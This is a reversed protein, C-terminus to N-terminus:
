YNYTTIVAEDSVGDRLVRVDELRKQIQARISDLESCVEELRQTQKSIDDKEKESARKTEKAICNLLSRLNEVNDRLNEELASFCGIAWFYFRSRPFSAGDYLLHVYEEPNMYTAYDAANIIDTIEAWLAKWRSIIEEGCKIAVRICAPAWTLHPRAFSPLSARTTPHHSDYFGSPTFVFISWGDALATMRRAQM